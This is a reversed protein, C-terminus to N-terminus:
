VTHKEGCTTTYESERSIKCLCASIIYGVEKIFLKDIKCWKSM